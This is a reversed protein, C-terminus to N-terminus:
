KVIKWSSKDLFKDVGYIDTSTSIKIEESKHNSLKTEFVESLIKENEALISRILKSDYVITNDGELTITGTTIINGTFDFNEKININGNTIIIGKDISINTGEIKNNKIELKSGDGILIVTGEKGEIVQNGITIKNFDIQNSVTRAVEQNLYLSNLDNIGTRDGMALVDIMFNEKEIKITNEIKIRDENNIVDENNIIDENYIINAGQVKSTGDSDKKISAGVSYVDGKLDVGGGKLSYEKNSSDYYDTFYKAKIALSSDGNISELLQLPNYYKLEIGNEINEVDTYALYNGKVAVSEGTQYKNGDITANLYAVGMIYSDGNVIIESTKSTDNVIISSSTLAKEVTSGEETKDNIGYFNGKIEITSGKSNMVLDNNVVVNGSITLKNKESVTKESNESSYINKAYINEDVKVNRNNSVQITNASLVNGKINLISNKVYIGGNYKDFIYQTNNKSPNNGKVWIDGTISTEGSNINLDGDVTLAKNDFVPYIAVNSIEANYDPSKITYITSVTKKNKLEGEVSEFTSKVEITISSIKNGETKKIYGGEPIDIELKKDIGDSTYELTGNSLISKIYKKETILYELLEVEEGSALNEKKNLFEYFKNKFLQDIKDEARNDKDLKSFEKKVEKDAYKIAEQSTKIIINEVIDLGSDAKYLNQLKKGENIRMKYGNATVALIATGTTFIIAMVIIVIIFTSGKKKKRQKVEVEGWM